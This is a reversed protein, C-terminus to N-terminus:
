DTGPNPPEGFSLIEALLERGGIDGPSTFREVEIHGDAFFEVEYRHGPVNVIVMVAPPRVSDLRFTLSHKGLDQLFSLFDEM